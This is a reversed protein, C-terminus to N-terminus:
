EGRNKPKAAGSKRPTGRPRRSALRPFRRPRRPLADAAILDLTDGHPVGSATLSRRPPLPEGHLMLRCQAADRPDHLAILAHTTAWWASSQPAIELTAVRGRDDRVYLPMSVHVTEERRRSTPRHTLARFRAKFLAM